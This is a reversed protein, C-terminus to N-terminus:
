WTLTASEWQAVRRCSKTKRLPKGYLIHWSFDYTLYWCVSVTDLIFWPSDAILNTFYRSEDSKHRGDRHTPLM